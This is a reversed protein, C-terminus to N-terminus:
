RCAFPWREEVSHRLKVKVNFGRCPCYEAHSIPKANDLCLHVECPLEALAVAVLGLELAGFKLDNLKLMKVHVVHTFCARLFLIHGVPGVRSATTGVQTRVVLQPQAKHVSGKACM